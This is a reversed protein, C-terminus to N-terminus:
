SSLGFAVCRFRNGNIVMLIRCFKNSFTFSFQFIRAHERQVATCFFLNGTNDTSCLGSERQAKVPLRFQFRCPKIDILQESPEQKAFPKQFKFSMMFDWLQAKIGAGPTLLWGLRESTAAANVFGVARM